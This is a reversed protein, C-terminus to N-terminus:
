GVPTKIKDHGVASYGVIAGTITEPDMAKVRATNFIKAFADL